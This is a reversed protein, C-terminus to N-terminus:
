ETREELMSEAEEITRAIFAIGGYSNVLDIFNQQDATPKGTANKVEVALFIAVTKGVMDPTIEVPLWGILDSSGKKLGYKVRRKIGKTDYYVVMGVNNRFVTAGLEHARLMIEAQRTTESKSDSMLIISM